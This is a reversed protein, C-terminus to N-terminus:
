SYNYTQKVQIKNLLVGLLKSGNPALSIDGRVYRSSIIEIANQLNPDLKGVFYMTIPDEKGGWDSIRSPTKYYFEQMNPVNVLRGQNDLYKGTKM